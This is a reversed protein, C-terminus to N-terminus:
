LHEGLEAQAAGGFRDPERERRPHELRKPRAPPWARTERMEISAFPHLVLEDNQEAVRRAQGARLADFLAEDISSCWRGHLTPSLWRHSM